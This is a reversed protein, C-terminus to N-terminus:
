SEFIYDLEFLIETPEFTSCSEKLMSALTHTSAIFCETFAPDNKCAEYASVILKKADEFTKFWHWICGDMDQRRVVINMGLREMEAKDIGSKELKSRLVDVKTEGEAIARILGRMIDDSM